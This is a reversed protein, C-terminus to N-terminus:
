KAEKEKKGSTKSGEKLKYSGGSVRIIKGHVLAQAVTKRAGNLVRGFSQRSIGMRSAAELHKLRELDALRIAELEEYKLGAEDPRGPKGRPSFLLIKPEGQIKRLKKPRGRPKM